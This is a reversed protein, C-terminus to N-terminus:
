RGAKPKVGTTRTTRRGEPKFVRDTPYAYILWAEARFPSFSHQKDYLVPIVTRDATHFVAALYLIHVAPMQALPVAIAVKKVRGATFNGSKVSASCLSAFCIIQHAPILAAFGAAVVFRLHVAAVVPVLLNVPRPPVTNTDRRNSHYQNGDTFKQRLFCYMFLVSYLFM